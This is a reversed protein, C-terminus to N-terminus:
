SYRCWRCKHHSPINDTNMPDEEEVVVVAAATCDEPSCCREGEELSDPVVALVTGEAVQVIGEV